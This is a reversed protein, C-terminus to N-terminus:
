AQFNHQFDDPLATSQITLDSPLNKIIDLTEELNLGSLEAMKIEGACKPIWHALAEFMTSGTPCVNGLMSAETLRNSGAFKKAMSFVILFVTAMAEPYSETLNEHVFKPLDKVKEFYIQQKENRKKNAKFQDGGKTYTGLYHWAKAEDTPETEVNGFVYGAWYSVICAAVRHERQATPLQAANWALNQVLSNAEITLVCKPAIQSATLLAELKENASGFWLYHITQSTIDEDNDPKGNLIYSINLDKKHFAKDLMLGEHTFPKLKEIFKKNDWLISGVKIITTDIKNLMRAACTYWAQALTQSREVTTNNLYDEWRPDNLEPLKTDALSLLKSVYDLFDSTNNQSAM